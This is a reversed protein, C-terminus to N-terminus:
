LKICCLCLKDGLLMAPYWRLRRLLFGVPSSQGAKFRCSDSCDGRDPGKFSHAAILTSMPSLPRNLSNSTPLESNSSVGQRSKPHLVEAPRITPETPKNMRLGQDRIMIKKHAIEHAPSLNNVLSHHLSSLPIDSPANQAINMKNEQQYTM